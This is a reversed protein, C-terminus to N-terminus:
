LAKPSEVFTSSVSGGRGRSPLGVSSVNTGVSAGVVLKDDDCPSSMIASSRGSGMRM